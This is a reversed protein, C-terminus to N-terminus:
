WTMSERPALAMSLRMAEITRAIGERLSTKATWGTLAKIRHPSARLESVGAEDQFVLLGREAGTLTIVIEAVERITPAVGTAINLVSCGAPPRDALLILAEVADEVYILDRRDAPRRVVTPRGQLCARIMAPILFEESQGAGYGLALRATTVPFNLIEGLVRIYHTGALKGVGYPTDPEERQDERFPVPAKGYEAISGARVLVAPPQAMGALAELLHILIIETDHITRLAADFGAAATKRTEAALHFVREPAAWDLCNSLAPLDALDLSHITIEGTMGQLRDLASGPRAVVHVDDGRALLRRVLHSGIFGTAGTVLSRTAPVKDERAQM